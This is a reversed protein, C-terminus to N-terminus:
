DSDEDDLSMYGNNENGGDSYYQEATEDVEEDESYIKL